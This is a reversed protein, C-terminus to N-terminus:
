APLGTAPGLPPIVGGVTLVALAAATFFLALTAALPPHVAPRYAQPIAYPVAPPDDTSGGPVRVDVESPGSLQLEGEGDAIWAAFAFGEHTSDRPGTDTGEGVTATATVDATGGAGTGVELWTSLDFGDGGAASRGDM